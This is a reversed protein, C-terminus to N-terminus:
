YCGGAELDKKSWVMAAMATVSILRPERPDLDLSEYHEAAWLERYSVSQRWFSPVLDKAPFALIELSDCRSSISSSYLLVKNCIYIYIIIYIIIYIYNYIIIYIIIYIYTVFLFQHVHSDSGFVVEIAEIGKEQAWSTLIFEADVPKLNSWSLLSYDRRLLILWTNVQVASFPLWM